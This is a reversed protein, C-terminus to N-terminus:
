QESAIQMEQQGKPNEALNILWTSSPISIFFYFRTESNNIWHLIWGVPCTPLWSRLYLILTMYKKPSPKHYLEARYSIELCFFLHLFQCSLPFESTKINIYFLQILTVFPFDSIRASVRNGLVSVLDCYQYHFLLLVPEKSTNSLNTSEERRDSGWLM